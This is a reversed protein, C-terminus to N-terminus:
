ARAGPVAGIQAMRAQLYATLALVLFLTGMTQLRQVAYLVSSVQLPHAAWAFALAIAMPAIRRQPVGILSLLSRFFWALVFTTLAHILLNTTKFTAPDAIGGARWYDLAFTLMPLGRLNGSVQQTSLVDVISALTLETLHIVRNNVINPIDDFLFDGPLGPIFLLGALLAVVLGALLFRHTDPGLVSARLPFSM